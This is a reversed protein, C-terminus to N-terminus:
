RYKMRKDFVYAFFKTNYLKVLILFKIKQIGNQQIYFQSKFFSSKKPIEFPLLKVYKDYLEVANSTSNYFWPRSHQGVYHIVIPNNIAEKVNTDEMQIAISTRKSFKPFTHFYSNYKLDLKVVNERHYLANIVTQDKFIYTNLSEIVQKAKKPINQMYFNKMNYIIFGSNLYANGRDFIIKKEENYMPSKNNIFGEKINIKPGNVGAIPRDEWDLHLLEKVSGNIVTDSDLYLILGNYNPFLVDPFAKLWINHSGNHEVLKLDYKNMLRDCIEGSNLIECKKSYKEFIRNINEKSIETMGTDIVYYELEDLDSNNKLFSVISVSTYPVYEESTNYVIKM